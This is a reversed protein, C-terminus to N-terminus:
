KREVEAVQVTKPDVPELGHKQAKVDANNHISKPDDIVMLCPPAGNYSNFARERGHMRVINDWDERNVKVAVSQGVGLLIGEGAKINHNIGPFVVTKVGGDKAPVDDFMIGHPLHCAITVQDKTNEPVARVEDTTSAVVQLKEKKNSTM